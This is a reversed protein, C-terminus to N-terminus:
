SHLANDIISGMIVNINRDQADKSAQSTLALPKISHANFCVIAPRLFRHWIIHIRQQCAYHYLFVFIFNQYICSFIYIDLRLLFSLKEDAQFIRQQCHLVEMKPDQWTNDESQNLVFSYKHRVSEGVDSFLWRILMIGSLKLM